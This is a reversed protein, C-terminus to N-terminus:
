VLLAETGTIRQIRAATSASDAAWITRAAFAKAKDAIMEDTYHRSVYEVNITEVQGTEPSVVELVADPYKALIEGGKGRAGFDVEEGILSEVLQSTNHKQQEGESLDRFVKGKFNDRILESETKWGVVSSGRRRYDREVRWIADMTRVHHEVFNERLTPPLPLNFELNAKQTISYTQTFYQEGVLAGVDGVTSAKSAGLTVPRAELYGKLVLRQLAADSKKRASLLDDAESRFLRDAIHDAAVVGGRAVLQILAIDPDAFPM